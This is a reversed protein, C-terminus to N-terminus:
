KPEEEPHLVAKWNASIREASGNAEAEQRKMIDVCAPCTTDACLAGQCACGFLPAERQEEGWYRPSDDDYDGDDSM